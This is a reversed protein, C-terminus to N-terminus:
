ELEVQGLFEDVLGFLFRVVENELLALYELQDDGGEDLRRHARERHGGKDGWFLLLQGSHDLLDEHLALIAVDVVEEHAQLFQLDVFHRDERSKVRVLVDHSLAVTLPADFVLYAITLVTLTLEQDSLLDQIDVGLSELHHILPHQSDLRDVHAPQSLLYKVLHLLLLLIQLVLSIELWSLLLPFSDAEEVLVGLLHLQPCVKGLERHLGILESAHVVGVQLLHTGSHADECVVHLHLLSLSELLQASVGTLYVIAVERTSFLAVTILQEAQCLREKLRVQVDLIGGM